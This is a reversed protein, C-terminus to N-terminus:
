PNSPAYSPVSNAARASPRPKQSYRVRSRAPGSVPRIIKTPPWNTQSTNTPTCFPQSPRQGPARPSILGHVDHVDESVPPLEETHQLLGRTALRGDHGDGGAGVGTRLLMVVAILDDVHHFPLRDHAQAVALVLGPRPGQDHDRGALPVVHAVGPSARQEEDRHVRWGDVSSGQPHRGISKDPRYGGTNSPLILSASPRIPRSSFFRPRAMRPLGWTTRRATTPSSARPWTRMSSAGPTPLVVSAADSARDMPPRKWRIWNVDSMSGESMRPTETHCGSRLSNRNLGPGRKALMTRASSILRVVGLVCDLRSSAIFSVWTEMSWAVYGSGRGKM